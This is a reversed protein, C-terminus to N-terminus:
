NNNNKNGKIYKKQDLKHPENYVWFVFSKL